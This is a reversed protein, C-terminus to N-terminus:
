QGHLARHVGDDAFRELGVIVAGDVFFVQRGKAKHEFQKMVGNGLSARFHFRADGFKRTPARSLGSEIGLDTSFLLRKGSKMSFAEGISVDFTRAGESQISV